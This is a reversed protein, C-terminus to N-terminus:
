EEWTAEAMVLVDALRSCHFVSLFILHYPKVAEVALSDFLYLAISTSSHLWWLFRTAFALDSKTFVEALVAVQKVIVRTLLNKVAKLTTRALCSTTFIEEVTIVAFSAHVYICFIVM